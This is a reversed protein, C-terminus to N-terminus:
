RFSLWTLQSMQPCFQRGEERRGGLGPSQDQCFSTLEKEVQAM